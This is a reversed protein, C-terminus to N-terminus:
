CRYERSRFRKEQDIKQIQNEASAMQGKAERQNIPIEFTLEYNISTRNLPPNGGGM